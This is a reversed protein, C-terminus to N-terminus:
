SQHRARRAENKLAEAHKWIESFIAGCRSMEEGSLSTNSIPLFGTM